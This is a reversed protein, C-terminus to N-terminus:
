QVAEWKGISKDHVTFTLKDGIQWVPLTLNADYYLLRDDEPNDMKGVNIIVPFFEVGDRLMRDAGMEKFAGTLQHTRGHLLEHMHKGYAIIPFLLMGYCFISYIGLVITLGMTLLKIRVIFSWIVGALLIVAPIGLAIARKKLQKRNSQYDQETYM